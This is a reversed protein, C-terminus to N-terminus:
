YRRITIGSKDALGLNQQVQSQQASTLTQSATVLLSTDGSLSPIEAVYNGNGLRDPIIECSTSDPLVVSKVSNNPKAM